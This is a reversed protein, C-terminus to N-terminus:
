VVLGGTAKETVYHNYAQRDLEAFDWGKVDCLHRLDTLTDIVNCWEGYPDYTKNLVTTLSKARQQTTTGRM